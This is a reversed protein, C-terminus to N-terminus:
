LKQLLLDFNKVTKGNLATRCVLHTYHFYLTTQLNYYKELFARGRESAQMYLQSQEKSVTGEQVLEESRQTTLGEFKEFDTHPSPRNEFGKYGDGQRGGIQFFVRPLADFHM